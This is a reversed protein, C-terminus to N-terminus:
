FCLSWLSPVRNLDQSQRNGAVHGQTVRCSRPCTVQGSEGDTQEGLLQLLLMVRRMPYEPANFMRIFGVGKPCHRACLLCAATHATMTVKIIIKSFLYIMTVEKFDEVSIGM